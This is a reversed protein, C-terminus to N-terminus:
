DFAQDFNHRLLSAKFIPHSLDLRLLCAIKLSEFKFRIEFTKSFQIWCKETSKHYIEWVLFPKETKPGMIKTCKQCIQWFSIDCKKSFPEFTNEKLILYITLLLTMKRFKSIEEEKEHEMSNSLYWYINHNRLWALM